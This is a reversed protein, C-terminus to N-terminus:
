AHESHSQQRQINSILKIVQCSFSINSHSSRGERSPASSSLKLLVPVSWDGASLMLKGCCCQSDEESHLWLETARISILLRLLEGFVQGCTSGLNM